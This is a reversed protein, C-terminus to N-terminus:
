TPCCRTNPLGTARTRLSLVRPHLPRDFLRRLPGLRLRGPDGGHGRDPHADAEDQAPPLLRRRRARNLQRAPRLRHRWGARAAVQHRLQSEGPLQHRRLLEGRRVDSRSQGRPQADLHHQAGARRDRRIAAHHLPEAHHDARIQGRGQGPDGGGRGRCTDAHLGQMVGRSDALSFGATGTTVGCVLQGRTRIQDVMASGSQAWAPAVAPVAWLAAALLWTIKGM